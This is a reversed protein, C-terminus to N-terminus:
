KTTLFILICILITAIVILGTKYREWLFHRRQEAFFGQVRQRAPEDAAALSELKPLIPQAFKFPLVKMAILLTTIIQRNIATDNFRRLLEVTDASLLERIHQALGEKNMRHVDLTSVYKELELTLKLIAVPTRAEAMSKRGISKEYWREQLWADKRIPNTLVEYAEKIENFRTEAYPNNENKDPHYAMALRRYARKIEPLAANAPLELISYYDKLM